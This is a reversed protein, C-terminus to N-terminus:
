DIFKLVISHIESPYVSQLAKYIAQHTAIREAATQFCKKFVLTYHSHESGYHHSRHAASENIVDICEFPLSSLLERVHADISYTM